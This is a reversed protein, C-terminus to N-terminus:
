RSKVVKTPDFELNRSGPTPNLYVTLDVAATDNYEPIIRMEVRAYNDSGTRVYFKTQVEFQYKDDTAKQSFTWQPQYGDAPATAMFEDKSEILGTGDVGEIKATWDFRKNTKPGKSIRLAITGSPATAKRGTTLDLRTPTGNNPAGLLTPGRQIMPESIGKKWMHFIVPKGPDPVHYTPEWFGAYEFSHPNSKVAELYGDKKLSRVGFNKGQIGTISFKGEADTAVTADSTGKPSMDTWNMNVEVGPIPQENQDLVKGYFEIPTRWEFERDQERKKWYIPWRPDSLGQYPGKPMVDPLPRLFPTANQTPSPISTAVHAPPEAETTPRRKGLMWVAGAVLLLALLATIIDSRKM